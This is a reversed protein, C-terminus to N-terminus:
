PRESPSQHQTPRRKAGLARIARLPVPNPLALRALPGSGRVLDRLAAGLDAHTFEFGDAELKRPLVRQSVLLTQDVMDPGFVRSLVPVPTPIVAPRRLASGLHEAFDAQPVPNPGVLNVPGALDSTLLHEIARVEDTLHIWSQWQRGTGIRGGLGLRFLPLQSALAGGGTALVIGTRLNVTRVGRPGAAAAEWQNVVDALFGRGRESEEDLLEDGRDGYYGVASGSLVIRCRDSDAVHASITRAAAVRSDLIARRHDRSWRGVIPAGALNVVADVDALGQAAITGRAPDWAREVYSRPTSRVLRIVEHEPELATVLARGILGSSGTVAIRM